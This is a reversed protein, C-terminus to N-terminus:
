PKVENRTDDGRLAKGKGNSIIIIVRRECVPREELVPENKRRVAADLPWLAPGAVGPQLPRIM